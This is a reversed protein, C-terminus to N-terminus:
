ATASRRSSMFSKHEQVFRQAEKVQEATKALTKSVAELTVTDKKALTSKVDKKSKDLSELINLFEKKVSATWYKTEKLAVQDEEVMMIMKEVCLAANKAKNLAAVRLDIELVPEPPATNPKGKGKGKIGQPAASGSGKGFGDFNSPDTITLSQDFLGDFEDLHTNAADTQQDQTWKKAKDVNSYLTIDANDKYEWVGPTQPCERESLRGSSIHMDIEDQSFRNLLATQSEWKQANKLSTTSTMSATLVNYITGRGPDLKWAMLVKGKASKGAANKYDEALQTDSKM